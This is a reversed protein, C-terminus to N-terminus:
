HNQSGLTAAGKDVNYIMKQIVMGMLENTTVQQKESESLITNSIEEIRRYKQRNSVENLPLRYKVGKDADLDNTSHTPTLDLKTLVIDSFDYKNKVATPKQKYYKIKKM